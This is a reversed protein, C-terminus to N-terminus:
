KGMEALKGRAPNAVKGPQDKGKSCLIVMCIYMCVAATVCIHMYLLSGRVFLTWAGLHFYIRPTHLFAFM